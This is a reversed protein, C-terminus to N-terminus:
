TVISIPSIIKYSQRGGYNLNTVIIYANYLINLYSPQTYIVFEKKDM